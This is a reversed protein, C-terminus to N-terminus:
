ARLGLDGKPVVRGMWANGVAWISEVTRNDMTLTGHREDLRWPTSVGIGGIHSQRLRDELGGNVSSADRGETVLGRFAQPLCGSNDPYAAEIAQIPNSWSTVVAIAYCRRKKIPDCGM